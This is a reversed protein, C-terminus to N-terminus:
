SSHSFKVIVPKGNDIATHWFEMDHTLIFENIIKDSLKNYREVVIISVYEILEALGKEGKSSTLVVDPQLRATPLYPLLIKKNPHLLVFTKALEIHEDGSHAAFNHRYKMFYDHLQQHELDLWDRAVQAHRGNANTFCKGYFTLSAVFYAKIHDSIERDKAVQYVQSHEKVVENTDYANNSLKEAVRIWNLSNDLDKKILTYGSLKDVPKGILEVKPSLKSEWYYHVDMEGSISDIERKVTLKPISLDSKM